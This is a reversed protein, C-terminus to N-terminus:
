ETFCAKLMCHTNCTILAPCAEQVPSLMNRTLASRETPIGARM